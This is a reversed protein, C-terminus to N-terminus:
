VQDYKEQGYDEIYKNKLTEKLNDIKVNINEYTKTATESIKEKYGPIKDIASIVKKTKSNFIFLEPDSGFTYENRLM